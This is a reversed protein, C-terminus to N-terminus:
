QCVAGEQNVIFMMGGASCCDSRRRRGTNSTVEPRARVSPNKSARSRGTSANPEYFDTCLGKGRGDLVSDLLFPSEFAGGDRTRM